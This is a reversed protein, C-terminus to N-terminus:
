ALYGIYSLYAGLVLVVVAGAQMLKAKLAFASWKDAMGPLVVFVTGKLLTAWGLFSIFGALLSDWANHAMVHVIGVVMAMMGFTLGALPEKDLDRYVRAYHGKSLLLGLGLALLVPGWLQVLFLTIDM